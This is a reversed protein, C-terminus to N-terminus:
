CYEVCNWILASMVFTCPASVWVACCEQIHVIPSGRKLIGFDLSNALGQIITTLQVYCAFRCAKQHVLHSLYNFRHLLFINATILPLPALLGMAESLLLLSEKTKV